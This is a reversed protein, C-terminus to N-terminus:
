SRYQGPRPATREPPYSFISTTFPTLVGDAITSQSRKIATMSRYILSKETAYGLNPRARFSPEMTFFCSTEWTQYKTENRLGKIKDKAIKAEIKWQRPPDGYAKLVDEEATGLGIGEPTKWGRLVERTVSEPMHMCNRFDSLVVEVEEPPWEYNRGTWVSLFAPGDQSQFCYYGETAKRGAPLELRRLLSASSPQSGRCLPGFCRPGSYALNSVEICSVKGHLLGFIVARVSGGLRGRYPIRKTGACPGYSEPIRNEPVSPKGYTRVVDEEDSGLGIGEPTKWSSLDDKSPHGPCKSTERLTISSIIDPSDPNERLDLCVRGNGSKYVAVWHWFSFPGKEGPTELQNLLNQASVPRGVCYPGLCKPGLYSQANAVTAIFFTLAFLIAKDIHM